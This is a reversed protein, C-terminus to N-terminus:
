KFAEPDEAMERQCPGCMTRTAPVMARCGLCKRDPMAAIRAATELQQRRYEQERRDVEVLTKAMRAAWVEVPEVPLGARQRLVEEALRVLATEERESIDHIIRQPCRGCNIDQHLAPAPGRTTFTHGCKLYVTFTNADYAVTELGIVESM